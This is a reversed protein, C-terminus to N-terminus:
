ERAVVYRSPLPTKVVCAESDLYVRQRPRRKVSPRGNRLMWARAPATSCVLGIEGVVGRGQRLEPDRLRVSVKLERGPVM